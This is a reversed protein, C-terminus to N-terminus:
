TRAVAPDCDADALLAAGRVANGLALDSLPHECTYLPESAVNYIRKALAQDRGAPKIRELEQLVRAQDASTLLVCQLFPMLTEVDKM